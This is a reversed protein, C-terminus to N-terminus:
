EALSMSSARERSLDPWSACSSSILFSSILSSFLWLRRHCRRSIASLLPLTLYAFSSVLAAAFYALSSASPSVVIILM